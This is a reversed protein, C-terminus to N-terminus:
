TFPILIKEKNSKEVLFGNDEVSIKFVDGKTEEYIRSAKVVKMFILIAEAIKDLSWLTLPANFRRLLLLDRFTQCFNLGLLECNKEVEEATIPIEYNEICSRWQILTRLTRYSNELSSKEDGRFFALLSIVYLSIVAKGLRECSKETKVFQVNPLNGCIPESKIIYLCLPDGEKCLNELQEKSLVVPSFGESALELLLTKDESIAVVNIDSLGEVYDKKGYSGFYGLYSARTCLGKLNESM